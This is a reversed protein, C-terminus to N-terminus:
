LSVGALFRDPLAGDHVLIGPAPLLFLMASRDSNRDFAGNYESDGASITKCSYCKEFFIKCCARVRGNELSLVQKNRFPDGFCSATDTCISLKGSAPLQDMYHVAASERGADLDMERYLVVSMCPIGWPENGPAAPEDDGAGEPISLIRKQEGAASFPM